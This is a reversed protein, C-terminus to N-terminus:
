RYGCGRELVLFKWDGKPETREKTEEEGERDANIENHQTDRALM